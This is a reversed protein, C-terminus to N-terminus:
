KAGSETRKREDREKSGTERTMYVFAYRVSICICNVEKGERRGRGIESAM